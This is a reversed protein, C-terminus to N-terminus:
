RGGNGRILTLAAMQEVNSQKLVRVNSAYLVQRRTLEATENAFDADRIRSEAGQFNTYTASLNSITVAIRNSNAGFDARTNNVLLIANDVKALAAQANAKTNIDNLALGLAAGDINGLTISLRDDVNGRFGIQLDMSPTSGDLLKFGGFETVDTIRDIEALLENWEANYYARTTADDLTGQAASAALDNMRVLLGTIQEAGKDAIELASVGDNSNRMAALVAKSQSRLQDARALGAADDASSNIRFGSSLRKVSSGMASYTPELHRVATLSSINTKIVLGM